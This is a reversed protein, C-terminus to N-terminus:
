RLYLEKNQKHEEFTKAYYFTGDDATLYYLYETKTPFLVAEIADIGPNAIAGPPLGRYKYTNYPSDTELDDTTLEDSTKDLLYDFVADVQLPMDIELRNQLIGSVLRKSTVDKAEREIISALIVVEHLTFPSATVSAEYSALKDTFTDRLLTVIDETTMDRSIFYTDPFLYGEYETVDYPLETFSDPLITYIDEAKFGEPFTITIHPSMSTGTTISTLIEETTKPSDFRYIGAQVNTDNGNRALMIYIYLSSRIVGEDELYDTIERVTLGEEITIDKGVPFHAPPTNLTSMSYGLAMICFVGATLIIIIAIRRRSYTQTEGYTDM